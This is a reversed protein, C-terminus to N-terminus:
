FQGKLKLKAKEKRCTSGKGFGEESGATTFKRQMNNCNNWNAKYNRM